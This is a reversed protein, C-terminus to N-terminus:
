QKDKDEDEEPPLNPKRHRRTGHDKDPKFIPSFSFYKPFPDVHFMSDDGLWVKETGDRDEKDGPQFYGDRYPRKEVYYWRQKPSKRVRGAFRSALGLEKCLKASRESGVARGLARFSFTTPAVGREVMSRFIAEPDSAPKRNTRTEASALLLWSWADADAAVSHNEMLEFVAEAQALKGEKAFASIVATYARADPRVSSLIAEDLLRKASTSDGGKSFAEIAQVHRHLTQGSEKMELSRVADLHGQSSLSEIVQSYLDASTSGKFAALTASAQAALGERSESEIVAEYCISSPEVQLMRMEHLWVAALVPDEEAIARVLETCEAREKRDRTLATYASNALDRLHDSPRMDAPLEGSLVTAPRAFGLESCVDVAALLVAVATATALPRRRGVIGMAIPAHSLKVDTLRARIHRLGICAPAGHFHGSPSEVEKNLDCHADVYAVCLQEGYREALYSIPTLDVSCDGGVTWVQAPQEARLLESASALVSDEEEGEEPEPVPLQHMPVTSPLSELLVERALEAGRLADVTGTGLMGAGQWQPVALGLSAGSHLSPGGRGGTVRVRSRPPYSFNALSLKGRRARGRCMEESGSRHLSALSSCQSKKTDVSVVPARGVDENLDSLAAEVAKSPETRSRRTEPRLQPVAFGSSYSAIKPLTTGVLVIM